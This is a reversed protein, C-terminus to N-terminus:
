LQTLIPLQRMTLAKFAWPSPATRKYTLVLSEQDHLHKGLEEHLAYSIAVFVEKLNPEQSMNRTLIAQKDNSPRLRDSM